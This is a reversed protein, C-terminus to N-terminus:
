CLLALMLIAIKQIKMCICYKIKLKLLCFFFTYSSGKGYRLALTKNETCLIM